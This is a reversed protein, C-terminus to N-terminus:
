IRAEMWGIVDSVVFDRGVENLIEHYFHPYFTLTKDHSTITDFMVQSAKPTVIQDDDGHLILCPCAYSSLYAELWATGNVFVEGLLGQCIEKLVLPDNTYADVVVQNRCILASLANPVKVRPEGTFDISKFGEFLPLPTVAGGSLIQGTLKGPYKVGYGAAIFGGMSHGLMFVPVEPVEKKAKEVLIDADDLFRTFDELYGREGGSRGHGQNDFRYVTFDAENLERTLQDYRGLHEALGHVMVVVAVPHEVADVRVFLEVGDSSSVIKEDHFRQFM